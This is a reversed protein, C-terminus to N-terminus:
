HIVHEAVIKFVNQVNEMMWSLMGLGVSRAFLKTTKKASLVAVIKVLSQVPTIMRFSIAGTANQAPIRTLVSPVVTLACSANGELKLLERAANTAPIAM